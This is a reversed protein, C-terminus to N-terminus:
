SRMREPGQGPSHTRIEARCRIRCPIAPTRPASEFLAVRGGRNRPRREVSSIRQCLFRQIKPDRDVAGFSAVQSKFHHGGSAQEQRAANRGLNKGLQCPGSNM